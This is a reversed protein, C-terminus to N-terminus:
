SLEERALSCGPCGCNDAPTECAYDSGKELEAVRALLADREAILRNGEVVAGQGAKLARDLQDELKAKEAGLAEASQLLDIMAVILNFGHDAQQGTGECAPCQDHGVAMHGVYGNGLCRRCRAELIVKRIQETM